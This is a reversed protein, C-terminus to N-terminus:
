SAFFLFLLRVTWVQWFLWELFLVVMSTTFFFRCYCMSGYSFYFWLASFLLEASVLVLWFFSFFVHSVSNLHGAPWPIWYCVELLMSCAVDLCFRVGNNYSSLIANLYRWLNHELFYYSFYRLLIWYFPEGHYSQVITRRMLRVSLQPQFHKM